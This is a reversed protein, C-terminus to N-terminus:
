QRRNMALIKVQGKFVVEMKAANIVKRVFGIGFTPHALAQNECYSVGQNYPMPEVQGALGMFNQWEALAEESQSVKTAAIKKLVRAQRKSPLPVKRTIDALSPRYRHQSGCRTCIVLHIKGAAMAVVRHITEDKCRSCTCDIADGVSIPKWPHRLERDVM